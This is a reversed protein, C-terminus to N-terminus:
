PTVKSKMTIALINVKGNYSYKKKFIIKFM